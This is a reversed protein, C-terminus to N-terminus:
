PSHSALAEKPNARLVKIVPFLTSLLVVAVAIGVFWLSTAVSLSTDYMEMVDELPIQSPNFLTLEWPVMADTTAEEMQGMLTQELLHRSVTSSLLNGLVLALVVGVMSIMLLETLLQRLIKVKKEGLALYIVIEKRRDQLILTISLFLTVMTAAVALYLIWDAIELMSDMALIIDGFSDSLDVIEWFEPLVNNAEEMFRGLDRPDNLLFLANIEPVTEVNILNGGRLGSEYIEDFLGVMAANEVRAIRDAVTIPIYIRNNLDAFESLPTSIDWGVYNEYDLEYLVEFIGIVEFELVEHHAYFREDHRNEMFAGRNGTERNIKALNHVISELIITDGVGVSNELAFIQPIVAVMEGNSIESETFTRGSLLEILGADMDTLAPNHVGRIPFDEMTAGWYRAHGKGRLDSASIGVLREEDIEVQGWELDRSFFSLRLYFDYNRVYPLSGVAEIDEASLYHYIVVRYQEFESIGSDYAAAGMDLRVTAVAPVQMIINEELALLATRVVIAMSLLSGLIFVVSFILISKSRQRKMHLMARSFPKM